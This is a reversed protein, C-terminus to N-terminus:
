EEVPAPPEPHLLAMLSLATEVQVTGTISLVMFRPDKDHTEIRIRAPKAGPPLPLAQLPARAGKRVYRRKPPPEMPAAEPASHDAGNGNKARGKRLLQLPAFATRPSLLRALPVNLAHAVWAANAPGPFNRASLWDRVQGANNTRMAGSKPEATVGFLLRAFQMHDLNRERLLEALAASFAERKERDDVRIRNPWAFGAPSPPPSPKKLTNWLGKTPRLEENAM